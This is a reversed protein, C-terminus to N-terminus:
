LTLYGSFTHTYKDRLAPMCKRGPLRTLLTTGEQSSNILFLFLALGTISRSQSSSGSKEDKASGSEDCNVRRITFTFTTFLIYIYTYTYHFINGETIRLIHRLRSTCEGTKKLSSSFIRLHFNTYLM